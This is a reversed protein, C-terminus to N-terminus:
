VRSGKQGPLSMESPAVHSFLFVVPGPPSNGLLAANYVQVTIAIILLNILPM